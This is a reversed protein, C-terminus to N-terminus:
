NLTHECIARLTQSFAVTSGNKSISEKSIIAELCMAEFAEMSCM